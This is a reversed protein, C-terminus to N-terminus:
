SARGAPTLAAVSGAAPTPQLALELLEDVRTVYDVAVVRRLDDGLDADVQKRNRRPLLVRRLGGRHATLVKEAIGGAPLVQGDLTIEGTMAVDDTRVPRRTFASVLAAAMTVGASVGEKPVEALQVHLHRRHRAPFGPRPRLTRRQRAAVVARDAGVGAIVEGQRGILVLAGSGPLRSAEVDLVEGGGVATRCLGAAVGPRGNRGAAEVNPEAPAGLMEALTQPTVEVPGRKRRRTPAGAQGVARRASRRGWVGAERTYGRILAGVAEGIVHVQEATLGHRALQLPM